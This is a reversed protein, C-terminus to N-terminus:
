IIENMDEYIANHIDERMKMVAGYDDFGCKKTVSATADSLIIAYLGSGPSVFFSQGTHGCHGISGKSFLAGTQSYKEDVYLFGLGRGESMGVTHNKVAGRFTKASIIPEGNKMLMSVFKTMDSINSFIGANGCVGGLHRCNCDNVLGREELAINSNVISQCKPPCFLSKSMGLPQAVREYFLADLREDFIKELVKGLLIFSPCSYLVDSGVPIDPPMSLIYEAVNDYTVEPKNLDKHGIGITHTLLHKVTIDGGKPLLGLIEGVNDSLCLLGEDVAILAICTPALIKTVSDMDFLTEANINENASRFMEYIVKEGKGIRIAINQVTGESFLRDVCQEIRNM